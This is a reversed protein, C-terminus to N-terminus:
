VLKEKRETKMREVEDIIEDQIKDAMVLVPCEDYESFHRNYCDICDEKKDNVANCCEILLKGFQRKDELKM